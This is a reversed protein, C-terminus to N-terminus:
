MYDVTEITLLQCCEELIDKTLHLLKIYSNKLKINQETLIKTEHYFKNVQTSLQYIYSCIKNPSLTEAAEFIVQQFNSIYLMLKKQTDNIPPLICYKLYDKNCNRILSKIRVITYLIYPGTNGEFSTFKNINFIYDKSLHNSLDCYKIASLGIKESLEKIMTKNISNNKELIKYVEFIVNNILKQLKVAKGERTKFPKGDLGNITGFGLFILKINNPILKTKKICRFIQTFHLEQRKDVVYIIENLNNNTKFRDVITAIDTTSYLCSGDKKLIICPPIEKKDNNEKVDVILAGDSIYAYNNTKLYNILSKIHKHSSSEGLWLDFNVSLKDYIPKLNNLSIERIKKWLDYYGKTKNQIFNTIKIAENHYNENLSAKKSSEHYLNEIDEITLNFNISSYDNFNENFYELTPYKHKLETIILGMPLGWDGLHIDGKINHGLYSLINKISQGIIASRLHGIHLSKAINPGGYDIIINKQNKVKEIGYLNDKGLRYMENLYESIYKEKLKINIFGPTFTTATFIDNPEINSVIENAITLPKTKKNKGIIFPSNCQFDCLDPRNSPTITVIDININMKYFTNEFIKKIINIITIM